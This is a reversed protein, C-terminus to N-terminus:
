EHHNFRREADFEVGGRFRYSESIRPKGFGDVLEHQTPESDVVGGDIDFQHAGAGV